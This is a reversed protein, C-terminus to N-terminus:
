RCFFIGLLIPIAFVTFVGLMLGLQRFMTKRALVRDRAREPMEEAILATDCDPCVPLKEGTPLYRTWRTGGHQGGASFQDWHMQPHYTTHDVCILRQCRDCTSSAVFGCVYCVHKAATNEIKEDAAEAM